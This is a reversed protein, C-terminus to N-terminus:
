SQEVEKLVKILYEVYNPAKLRLQNLYINLILFMVTLVDNGCDIASYQEFAGKLGAPKLNENTKWVMYKKEYCFVFDPLLSKDRQGIQDNLKELLTEKELGDFGFIIGIYDKCKETSATLGEGIGLEVIPTIDLMTSDRRQLQKISAINDLSKLLEDTSLNSKIEILGYISECPFLNSKHNKLLVNSHIADYVVIDIQKSMNDNLDFVQGTGLGFCEPLFPRLLNSIIEERVQGKEGSHTFLSSKEFQAKIDSNAIRLADVLKM